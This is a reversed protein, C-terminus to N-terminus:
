SESHKGEARELPLNADAVAPGACRALGDPSM